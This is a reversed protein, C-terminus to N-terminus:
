GGLKSFLTFLGWHWKGTRRWYWMQFRDGLILGARYIFWARVAHEVLGGPGVHLAGV